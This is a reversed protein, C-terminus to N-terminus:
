GQKNVTIECCLPMTYTKDRRCNSHVETNWGSGNMETNYLWSGRWGQYIENNYNSTEGYLISFGTTSSTVDSTMYSYNNASGLQNLFGSFQGANTAKFIGKGTYNESDWDQASQASNTTTTTSLIRHAVLIRIEDVSPIYWNGKTYSSHLQKDNSNIQPEFLCANYFATYLLQAYSGYTLAGQSSGNYVFTNLRNNFYSCIDAFQESNIDNMNYAANMYSNTKMYAGFDKEDKDALIQLHKDAITKYFYTNTKGSKSPYTNVDTSLTIIDTPKAIAEVVLYPSYYIQNHVGTNTLPPAVNSATEPYFIQTLVNYIKNQDEGYTLVTNFVNNNYTYYDPGCIGNVTHNSLIKLDLKSSDSANVKKAFIMGVLTKSKIFSGSFIGEAYAYDGVQPERYGFFIKGEIEINGMTDCYITVKYTYEKDSNGTVVVEGSLSDVIAPASSDLYYNINLSGDTNLFVDNGSTFYIDEFPYFVNDSDLSYRCGYIIEEFVANDYKLPESDYKFYVPNNINDINGFAKALDKKLQYSIKSLEGNELIEYNGSLSVKNGINSILTVVDVDLNGDGVIKLLNSNNFDYYNRILSNLDFESNVGDWNVTLSNLKTGDEFTISSLNPNNLISISKICSPLIVESLKGGEPLIISEIKSCGRLDLKRLRNCNRFDITTNNFPVNTLVLEEIVPLYDYVVLNVTNIKYNAKSGDITLYAASNLSLLSALYDLGETIELYKYQNANSIAFGTLSGGTLTIPYVTDPVSLSKIVTKDYKINGSNPFINLNDILPDYNLTEITNADNLILSYNSSNTYNPYFYNVYKANGKVTFQVNGEPTGVNVLSQSNTQLGSGTGTLTALLLLRDKLFQVEGEYSSGHSLSLPNKVSNNVYKNLIDKFDGSTFTPSGDQYITQALEYYIEATHNYAIAPFYNQIRLFNEYLKTETSEVANNGLLYDVIYGTYLNIKDAFCIDFPYFLSSHDDGWKGETDKNFAPELLYYSKNQQGNNDTAFITDLDDQMLRVKYDGRDTREGNEYIKGIIQFYTNKARNDTGSLVRIMAQHFAIDDVDTYEKCASIFMDKMAPLLFQKYWIDDKTRTSGFRSTDVEGLQSYKQYLDSETYQDYQDILNFTEWTGGSVDSHHLGAPVWKNRIADWRFVDFRKTSTISKDNEDSSNTVSLTNASIYIKKAITEDGYTKAVDFTGSIGLEGSSVFCTFDYQYMANYFRVFAPLSYQEVEDSFKFVLNNEENYYPEYETAGYDVDLPDNDKGYKITEDSILLGATHSVTTVKATQQTINTLSDLTSDYTQFAAWPVKFNAGPNGNDAGEMLIYEPTIDGDYGYTPDDAKASGWTQFGMFRAGDLTEEITITELSQEPTINYYFYLFENELCTKRGGLPFVEDLKSSFISRYTDDYTNCAGQKHTQMSSAYNVKGVFKKAKINSGPMQYYNRPEIAEGEAANANHTIEAETLFKGKKINYQCNHILYKKASSGQAKYKGGWMRGNYNVKVPDAYHILLTAESKEDGAVSKNGYYLPCDTTPIAYVLVNYKNLCKRLSIQGNEDLIDNKDYFAKKDGSDLLASIRNKKIEEYNFPYNYTRLGYFKIDSSTPYVQLKFDTGNEKLQSDVLQIERNIVGNIYIKLVNYPKVDSSTSYNATSTSLLQNYTNIYTKPLYQKEYTILIHTIADKQFDAKSNIFVGDLAYGKEPDPDEYVRVYGPGILLNGIRVIYDDGNVNYTRVLFEFTFGNNLYSSLDIANKFLNQGSASVQFATYKGDISWGDGPQLQILEPKFVNSGSGNIQSYDLIAGSVHNFANNINYPNEVIEATFYTNSSSGDGDYSYVEKGNITFGIFRADREGVTELEFYSYFEKEGAAEGGMLSITTSNFPTLSTNALDDFDDWNESLYSNITIDGGNTGSAYCIKYLLANSCNNIQTPVSNIVAVADGQINNCDVIVNTQIWNSYFLNSNSKYEIRAYIQHTGPSGFDIDVKNNFELDIQNRNTSGNDLYVLRYSSIESTTLGSINFSVVTGEVYGKNTYSLNIKKVTVTGSYISESMQEGIVCSANLTGNLIGSDFLQTIDIFQVAELDSQSNPVVREQFTKNGLSFKIQQPSIAYYYKGLIEYTVVFKLGVEIKKISPQNLEISQGTKLDNNNSNIRISVIELQPVYEPTANVVQTESIIEGHVNYGYLTSDDSQVFEFRAISNDEADKLKRSIFDEVQEGSKGEWPDSLDKIKDILSEHIAM